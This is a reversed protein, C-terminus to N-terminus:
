EPIWELVSVMTPELKPDQWAVTQHFLHIIGDRLWLEVDYCPEWPGLPMDTIDKITWKDYEPAEAMAISAGDGREMDRFIVYVRDNKGVLVKPRSIQIPKRGIDRLSFPTTRRTIQRVQWEKGDHFILHYQPTNKEGEPRWYQCTIPNGKSNVTTSSTNILEANQPVPVVVEANESTIPLEYEEGNSRRWTEGEDDSKAYCIDHNTMADPTERWCWFIHWTGNKDIGVQNTYANREGKGHIFANQVLSWKETDIDYRKLMMNGNGSSGDRYMFLLDGDPLNFFEPYTVCGEKYGTMPLKDTLELSDTEVSRCYRLKGCHHDWSMHLIGKGDFAICIVNHTDNVNGKYQTRKIEWKDTGLKRRALTVYREPDYFAIYQTDKWTALAETRYITANVKTKSWGKAVHSFRPNKGTKASAHAAGICLFTGLLILVTAHKATM